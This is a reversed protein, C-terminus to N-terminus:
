LPVLLWARQQIGIVESSYAHNYSPMRECKTHEDDTFLPANM